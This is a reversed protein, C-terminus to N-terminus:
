DSRKPKPEVTVLMAKAVTATKGSPYTITLRVTYTGTKRYIKVPNQLDSRTGDGFEWRWSTPVGRSTDTFQVPLPATGSTVNTEFSALLRSPAFVTVTRTAIATLGDDDTVTLTVSYTGAM